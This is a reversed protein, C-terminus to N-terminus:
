QHGGTPDHLQARLEVLQERGDVEPVDDGAGYVEVELTDRRPVVLAHRLEGPGEGLEDEVALTVPERTVDAAADGPGTDLRGAGVEVADARRDVVHARERHQRRPVGRALDSLRGDRHVQVPALVL